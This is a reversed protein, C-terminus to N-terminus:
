VEKSFPVHIMITTGAGPRSSLHFTGAMFRTREKMDTLGIGIEINSQSHFGKGDDQITANIKDDSKNIVISCVEAHAHKLINNTAEQIIRYFHIESEKPLLHDINEIKNDFKITTAREMKHIMAEIAKTLGLRDLMHPHLNHSIERVENISDKVIAAVEDISKEANGPQLKLQQLENNVILLNQGLGDHLEASIRKRESEQSEILKNSFEIQDKRSQKLHRVRYLHALLIVLGLLIGLGTRFWWTKWFPPLITVEISTGAENWIGDSNSGKVKFTYEGPDLNTFTASRKRADTYIWEQDFGEMKYAYKNNLPATYDLASFDFSFVYDNYSLHLNELVSIHKGLNVDKNFKKLSTIVIPPIYSNDEISDPYFSVFGKSCGFFLRGNEDKYFAGGSFENSPLGDGADYNKFSFFPTFKSLGKNTSLWLNGKLDELIGYIHQNPLGDSEFIHIFKGSISDTINMYSLGGATGVWLILNGNIESSYISNVINDCLSQSDSPDHIYRVFTNNKAEYRNLGGGWGGIWLTGRNDQYLSLIYDSSISHSNTTEFRFHTVEKTQIDYRDLGQDSTGIWLYGKDDILLKEIYNSAISQPNKPNHKFHQFNDTKPNLRNLGGGFTGIWINGNDDGTIAQINNHSISHPNEPDHKFHSFQGTVPDLRNLGTNEAGIWLNGERDKYFCRVLNGSLSNADTKSHETHYFKKRNLDLKSLGNTMTGIWLIGSKDEFLSILKNSSLSKENTEQHHYHSFSNAQSDFLNLGGGLTAIWLNGSNDELISSIGNSSISTSNRPNNKFHSFESTNLNFRNLGNEMTGIWVAGQKDEHIAVIKNGQISNLKKSNASFRVFKIQGSDNPTAPNMYCLGDWTGAWLLGRSDVYIRRVYDNSISQPNEPDHSFSKFRDHQPDYLSIGGGWTGIWLNGDSDEKISTPRSNNISNPNDREPLYRIFKSENLDYRNLGRWTAIWLNGQKDENIDWIWNHSISNPDLPHHKFVEFSYGDFKNLGDQTGFWLFGRSDQFICNITNQSLGQESSIREFKLHQKFGPNEARFNVRCGPSLSIELLGILFLGTLWKNM